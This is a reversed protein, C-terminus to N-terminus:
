AAVVAVDNKERARRKKKDFILTDGETTEEGLRPTAQGSARDGVQLAAVQSDVQPIQVQGSDAQRGRACAMLWEM